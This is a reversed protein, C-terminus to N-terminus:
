VGDQPTVLVQTKCVLHTDCRECAGLNYTCAENILCVSPYRGSRKLFRADLAKAGRTIGSLKRTSASWKHALSIGPSTNPQGDGGTHVWRALGCGTTSFKAFPWRPRTLM